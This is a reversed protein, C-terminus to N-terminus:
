KPQIIVGNSYSNEFNNITIPNIDGVFSSNCILEWSEEVPLIVAQELIMKLLEAKGLYIDDDITGLESLKQYENLNQKFEDYKEQTLAIM